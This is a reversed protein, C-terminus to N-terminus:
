SNLLELISWSSTVVRRWSTTTSLLSYTCKGCCTEWTRLCCFLGLDDCLWWTKSNIQNEKKLHQMTYNSFINWFTLNKDWWDISCKKGLRKPTKSKSKASAMYPGFRMREVIPTFWNSKVLSLLATKWGLGSVAHLCDKHQLGTWVPALTSDVAELSCSGREPVSTSLLRMDEEIPSGSICFPTPILGEIWVSTWSM